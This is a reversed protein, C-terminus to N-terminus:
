ESNRRGAHRWEIRGEGQCVRGVVPQAGTLAALGGSQEIRRQGQLRNVALPQRITGRQALTCVPLVSTQRTSTPGESLALTCPMRM